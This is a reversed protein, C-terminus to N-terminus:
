GGMLQDQLHEILAPLDQVSDIVFDAGARYFRKRAAQRRIEQEQAPLANWDELSLGNENGSIAVGVTWVGAALGEEIGPITDDVKICARVDSIELELLNKLTMHPWPRGKAVEPACVLSDPEFGQDAAAEVLPEMMARSYGTNTGIQIGKKKLYSVTDLFGPIAQSCAKIAELQYPVFAEYLRDIDADTAESGKVRLWENKIRPMALLQEIHVRKETGMPGRAEEESIPVGEASFLTQFAQIPARSGFDFITGAWDFVIAEIPGAYHRQYHYTM